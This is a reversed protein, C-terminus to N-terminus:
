TGATGAPWHVVTRWTQPDPETAPDSLYEEWMENAPTLGQAALRAQVEAYTDVLREYPGVHVAVAAPGGPLLSTVVEGTGPVAAAVPFGAEVDVGDEGPMGHYLAFPPGALTTGQDRAAAATATFARAFFDPLDPMPVVRHVVVTVREPEDRIVVDTM